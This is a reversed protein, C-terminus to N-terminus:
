RPQRREGHATRASSQASVKYLDCFGVVHLYPLASHTRETLAGVARWVIAPPRAVGQRGFAAVGTWRRRQGGHSPQDTRRTSDRGLGCGDTVSERALGGGGAPYPLRCAVCNGQWPRRRGGYAVGRTSEGGSFGGGATFTLHREVLEEQQCCRWGGNFAQYGLPGVRGGASHGLPRLQVEVLGM